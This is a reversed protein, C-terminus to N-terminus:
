GSLNSVAFWVHLSCRLQWYSDVFTHLFFTLLHSRKSQFYVGSNWTLAGTHRPLTTRQCFLCSFFSHKLFANLGGSIKAVAVSELSLRKEYMQVKRESTLWRGTVAARKLRLGESIFLSQQAPAAFANIQRQSFLHVTADNRLPSLSLFTMLNRQFISRKECSFVSPVSSTPDLWRLEASLDDAPIQM